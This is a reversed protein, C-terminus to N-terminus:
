KLVVLLDGKKVGQGPKVAIKEIVGAIPASIITESKMAEVSLLPQGKTVADGEKVRVVVVRGQLPSLVEGEKGKMLEEISQGEKVPLENVRDVKYEEEQDLILFGEDLTISHIQDGVKFLYENERTGKGLFEVVMEGEESKITDKNDKQDYSVVYTEGTDMYVRLLKM